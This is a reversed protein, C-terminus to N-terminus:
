KSYTTRISANTLMEAYKDFSYTKGGNLIEEMVECRIADLNDRLLKAARQSSEFQEFLNSSGHAFATAVPDRSLTEQRRAAAANARKEKDGIGSPLRWPKSYNLWAKPKATATDIHMMGASVNGSLTSSSPASCDGVAKDNCEGQVDTGGTSTYPPTPAFYPALCENLVAADICPTCEVSRCYVEPDNEFNRFDLIDLLPDINSVQQPPEGQEDGNVQTCVETAQETHKLSCRCCLFPEGLQQWRLVARISAADFTPDPPFRRSITYLWHQLKLHHLICAPTPLLRQPELSLLPVEFAELRKVARCLEELNQMLQTALPESSWCLRSLNICNNPFLAYLVMAYDCGTYDYSVVLRPHDHDTEICHIAPLKGTLRVMFASICELSPYEVTSSSSNLERNDNFSRSTSVVDAM